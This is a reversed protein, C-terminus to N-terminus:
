FVSPFHLPFFAAVLLATVKASHCDSQPIATSPSYLFVNGIGSREM